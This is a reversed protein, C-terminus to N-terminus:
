NRKSPALEADAAKADTSNTHAFPLLRSKLSGFGHIELRDKYADVVAFSNTGAGSQVMGPLTVHHIGNTQGYGGRHDHGNFCAVVNKSKALIADLATLDWPTFSLDSSAASLPHHSLVIVPQGQRAAEELQRRLWELQEEGLAGNYLRLKPDRSLLGDAARRNVSDPPSKVSVAMTNLVVFRYNKFVFSYYADRLNLERMLVPLDVDLCHNGIVHYVQAECRAFVGLVARLEELSKTGNGDIIDGLNVVFDVKQRTLESLSAALKELSERFRLAGSNAKDAYQVDAVLGFRFQVPPPSVSEAAALLSGCCLILAVGCTWGLLCRRTM